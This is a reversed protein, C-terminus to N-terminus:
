AKKEQTFTNTYSHLRTYLYNIETNHTHTVVTKEKKLTYLLCLLIILSNNKFCQTMNTCQKLSVMIYQIKTM